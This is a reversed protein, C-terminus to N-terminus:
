CKCDERNIFKKMCGIDDFVHIGKLQAFGIEQSVGKSHEWGPVLFLADCRELITQNNNFYDGYNWDGAVLGSLFDLGPCFTSFGMKRVKRDWVIMRHLNKIYECADSNLAGAMYILKNKNNSM